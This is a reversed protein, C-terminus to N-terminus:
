RLYIDEMVIGEGLDISVPTKAHLDMNKLYLNEMPYGNEGQVYIGIKANGCRLNEVSINRVTPMNEVAKGHDDLPEGTYRVTFYVAELRANDVTINEFDVNEVVGGRGQMTKVRVGSYTDEFHCDHLWANRIGASTESGLTLGGHGRNAHCNRVEIDECPIGVEWADEDRGAKLCIVDDSTDIECNEILGRKCSELNVGDTNHSVKQPNVITLGRVTINQCWAPHVTWSPSNQLHVNEILINECEVLQIMRPRVGDEIRDYVRGELPRGERGAVLLDAMGPNKYAMPWWVQGHGDLTGTGSIAINKCRYAYILHSPCYCRIGALIGYVPPLYDAFEESFEIKCGEEFHLDINSRFHIPGTLWTGAPFVVHGGGQAACYAIADAIPKTNKVIGGEVAGFDRIDVRLDPFEPAVPLEFPKFFHM